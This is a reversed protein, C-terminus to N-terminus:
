VVVGYCQNKGYCNVFTLHGKVVHWCNAVIDHKIFIMKNEVSSKLLEVIMADVDCKHANIGLREIIREKAHKSAVYSNGNVYVVDRSM